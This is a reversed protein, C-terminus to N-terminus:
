NLLQLKIQKARQNNPQLELLKDLEVIAQTQDGLAFYIQALSLRYNANNSDLEVARIAYYLAMSLHNSQLYLLSAARAADAQNPLADFLLGASNAAREFDSVHQFYSLQAQQNSLWSQGNIRDVGLQSIKSMAQPKNVVQKVDTFPYDSTLQAIKYKAFMEDIEGIPSLTKAQAFSHTFEAQILETELLSQYFAEALLLYGLHNPHLHEHMLNFGILGNSQTHMFGRVDVLQASHKQASQAIIQNFASPARFRLLDFDKAKIYFEYANKTDNTAAYRKAVWYMFNAHALQNARQIDSATIATRQSTQPNSLLLVKNDLVDDKVSAFPAQDKENDVLNGIYVPVNAKEFKALIAHLNQTFQDIGARYTSDNFVINKNKAVTAMVTRKNQNKAEQPQSPSFISQYWMQLLQFVRVDKLALFLLNASHGANAAFSSGVGMVGLYENHGTYILVADPKIDILEQSIDLLTYSNISSMAVSIIEINQHPNSAKLRQKLIGAPSGFRGYPFGAMTSGGMTVIRLTDPSKNTKFLFTDPAVQPSPANLGFYRKILNPNPQMYGQTGAPVFLPYTKGFDFVRLMGEAFLLLLLPLTIAIVYFVSQKIKM